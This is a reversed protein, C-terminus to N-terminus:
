AKPLVPFDPKEGNLVKLVQEAVIMGARFQGEVTNAGIHPTFSVNDLTMLPSEGPPETEFVDLAAGAIRGEKLADYLAAEDILGGRACNILYATKKMKSLAEAGIMHRNEPTYNSHLSIFDSRAMLDEFPVPEIGGKSLAEGSICPDCGIVHMGLARAREATAQGIRGCGILGLTKGNLEIGKLQKKLWEGKKLASTARPVSRALSFMHAIAMEAVSVTSGSPANVVVIGKEVATRVDINDVGIGARAIVKLNTGKELADARVKTRSRVMLAEHDGIIELLREPTAEDMVVEHGADRLMQVAEKALGDTILIKM